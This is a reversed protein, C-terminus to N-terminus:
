GRWWAVWGAAVLATLVAVVPSDASSVGSTEDGAVVPTSRAATDTGAQTQPAGPDPLEDTATPLLPTRRVRPAPGTLARRVDTRLDTGAVASVTEAFAAVTVPDDRRQLRVLVHEFSRQGSTARRIRADLAAVVRVGKEYEVASEAWTTPETLDARRYDATTVRERFRERDIAGQRYTVVATAYEASGEDLWAMARTTRFSQRTHRYEHVWVNRPTGVPERANVIANPEGDVPTYGGPALDDPAVFLTVRDPGTGVASRRQARAVSDLVRDRDAALTATAPVVLRVRGGAHDRTATEHPGLYAVTPGAVGSGRGVALRENWGPDPGGRWRWRADLAVEPRAVLTWSATDATRTGFTTELGVPALYTLRAPRDTGNWVWRGSESDFGQSSVVTANAPATVSLGTVREPPDVVATVEVVGQEPVQAVEYRVTTSPAEDAAAVGSAASVALLCGVLVV